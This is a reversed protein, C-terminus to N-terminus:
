REAFPKLRRRLLGALANLFRARGDDCRHLVDVGSSAIKAQDEAERAAGRSRLKESRRFKRALREADPEAGDRKPETRTVAM